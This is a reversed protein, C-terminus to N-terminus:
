AKCKLTIWTQKIHLMARLGAYPLEMVTGTYTVEERLTAATTDTAIGDCVINMMAEDTLKKERTSEKDQPDQKTGLGQQWPQRPQRKEGIQFTKRM